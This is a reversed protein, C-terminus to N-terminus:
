RERGLGSRLGGIPKGGNSDGGFKAALGIDDEDNVKGCEVLSKLRIGRIVLEADNM